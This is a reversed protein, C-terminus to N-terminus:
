TLKYTPEKLKQKLPLPKATKCTCLIITIPIKIYINM